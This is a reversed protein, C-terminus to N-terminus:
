NHEQIYQAEDCLIEKAHRELYYSRYQNSLHIFSLRSGIATFTECIHKKDGEFKRKVRNYRIQDYGKLLLCHETLDDFSKYFNGSFLEGLFHSIVKRICNDFTKLYPNVAIFITIKKENNQTYCVWMVHVEQLTKHEVKWKYFLFTSFHRLFQVRKLNRKVSRSYLTSFIQKWLLDQNNKQLTEKDAKM